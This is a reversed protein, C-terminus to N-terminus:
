EEGFVSMGPDRLDKVVTYSTDGPIAGVPLDSYLRYIRIEVTSSDVFKASANSRHFARVFKHETGSPSEKDIYCVDMWDTVSNWRDRDHYAIVVYRSNEIRFVASRTEVGTVESMILLAGACTLILAVPLILLALLAGILLKRNARLRQRWNLTSM